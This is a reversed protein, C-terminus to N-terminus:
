FHNVNHLYAEQPKLKFTYWQADFGQVKRKIPLSDQTIIKCPM